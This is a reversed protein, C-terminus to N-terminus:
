AARGGVGCRGGIRGRRYASITGEQRLVTKPGIVVEGEHCRIKTGDGVWVFRGFRIAGKRGIQIELRTGLFLPGDTQWRWGAPTLFRRWAYRVALRAYKPTLM